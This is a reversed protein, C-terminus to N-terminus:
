EGWEAPVSRGEGAPRELLAMWIPLMFLLFAVVACVFAQAYSPM